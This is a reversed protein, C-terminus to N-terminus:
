ARGRAFDLRLEATALADLGPLDRHSALLITNARAAHVDRIVGLMQEVLPAEMQAFPEDLLLLRADCCLARALALRQQQGGSLKPPHKGAFSSLGVLALYEDARQRRERRSLPDARLVFELNRRASMHPWLALSQFQMAVDRQEPPVFAGDGSVPRGWLAVEGRGPRELGAVLRLLTTKGCGSPGRLWLVAGSEVSLSLDALVVEDGYSKAVARLEVAMPQPADPM